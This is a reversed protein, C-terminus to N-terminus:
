AAARLGGHIAGPSIQVTAPKNAVSPIHALDTTTILSQGGDDLISILRERRDADLESMVDDLLMVPPAGRQAGIVEREALLLSLLALRQEGQSGYARLDRGDRQFLLEDRHPGHQTFGRQLDSDHREALEAAFEEATQAESRPRFRLTAAGTLGLQEAILPFRPAILECAAARDDRLAIGHRALEMDWAALSGSSGGHRVRAILANRQALAQAYALRTKARSPWLGTVVQDLHARRLAPTGKILELRDPLFVSVLPRFPHEALREVDAGDIEILKPDGPTLGVAIRHKETGDLVDVEVRTTRADFRVMERENSTRCSRATCGFYLAELLNTKGVGNPGHIVNTSATLQLTASEYTRFERLHIAEIVM